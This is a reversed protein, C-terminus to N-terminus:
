GFRDAPTGIIRWAYKGLILSLMDSRSYALRAALLIFAFILGWVLGGIHAWHATGTTMVLSVAIVDFMIYFLVVWFGRLAFCWFSLHFGAILLMWRIWFVMYVKHAPFLFLYMGAMGMVAGSAGLMPIPPGGAEISLMQTVAAAIALIPYLIVTAINGIAANVRSGLVLLFLMNGALHMPGGHLFAHTILQYFKFKGFCQQRDTLANLAAVDLEEEPVTGSLEERKAYFAKADGYSTYDYFMQITEADPETNSSWLMLNKNSMMQPSGSFELITFWASILVTIAAIAWTAYPKHNGIAESYVPYIGSWIVWSIAGVIGHAKEELEDPDVDWATLIPRGSKIFIGCRTCVPADDAMKRECSPCKTKGTIGVARGGAEIEALNADLGPAAIEPKDDAAQKGPVEMFCGCEPCEKINGASSQPVQTSAKCMECVVSIAAVGTATAPVASPITLGPGSDPRPSRKAMPTKRTVAIKLNQGVLIGLLPVNIISKCTPCKGKKGAHRTSVSIGKGCQRCEFKMKEFNGPVIVATGCKCKGEKGAYDPKTSLQKRCVPCEFTVAM